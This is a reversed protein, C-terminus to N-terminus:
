DISRRLTEIATFGFLGAVFSAVYRASNSRQFYDTGILLILLLTSGTLVLGVYLRRQYYPQKSNQSNM